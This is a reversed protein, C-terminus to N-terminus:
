KSTLTRGWKQSTNILSFFAVGWGHSEKRAQACLFLRRELHCEWWRSDAKSFSRKQRLILMGGSHLSFLFYHNLVQPWFKEKSFCSNQKNFCKLISNLLIKTKQKNAQLHLILFDLINQTPIYTMQFLGLPGPFVGPALWCPLPQRGLSLHRTLKGM